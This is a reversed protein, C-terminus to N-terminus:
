TMLELCSTADVRTVVNVRRFDVCLQLEGNKEIDVVIPSAWGLPFFSAHKMCYRAHYAHRMKFPVVVWAHDHM